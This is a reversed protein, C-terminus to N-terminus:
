RRITNRRYLLSISVVRLPATVSGHVRLKMICFRAPWSWLTELSTNRGGGFPATGYNTAGFGGTEGGVFQMSLQPTRNGDVDYLINDVYMDLTFPAAGQTDMKIYHTQKVSSRTDLDAWPFEWEFDIPTGVDPDDSLASDVFDAYIPDQKTGYVYVRKDAGALFLRGGQSRCGATFNWGRFTTWAKVKLAKISTYVYCVTETTSASDNHNPIFLMYQGEDRNYVAFVREKITALSLESMLAKIGPDVLQSVRNPELTAVLKTREMSPVGTLDCFLTDDGLTHISAHCAGGVGEIVDDFNPVHVASEYLGLIGIIIAEDFMVLLNGRFAGIGNITGSGSPVRSGLAVQTGDSSPDNYWTGSSGENSIHLTDPAYPDGAMLLYNNHTLVYAAIPVNINSSTGKDYLYQCTMADDVIVPKDSGNCIILEGRFEASSASLTTGWGTVTYASHEYRISAGGGTTTSTANTTAVTITYNDDDIKTVTHSTNIEAAPIGGTATALDLTITDSTSLGHAEHYVNIIKSGSTTTLPNRSLMGSVGISLASAITDNWIATATGSSDIKYITGDGIVAVIHLNYYVMHVIDASVTAALDCFQRTGWRVSKSGDPDRYMNKDIVSYRTTLNLQNDILNLGGGFDRTTVEDLRISGPIRPRALKRVFASM